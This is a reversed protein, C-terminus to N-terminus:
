NLDYRKRNGSRPVEPKHRVAFYWIAVGIAAFCILYFLITGFGSSSSTGSNPALAPDDSWNGGQPATQHPATPAPAAAPTPTNSKDLGYGIIAGTAMDRMGNNQQPRETYVTRPPETRPQEMRPRPAIERYRDAPAQRPEYRNAMTATTAAAAATGAKAVSPATDRAPPVTDRTPPAKLAALSKERASQEAMMATAGSPKPPPKVAVPNAPASQNAVPPQKPAFSGWSSGTPPKAIPSDASKRAQYSEAPKAPADAKRTPKDGGFKGFSSTTAPKSQEKKPKSDSSTSAANALSLISIWSAVLVTAIKIKM